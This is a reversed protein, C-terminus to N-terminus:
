RMHKATHKNQEYLTELIAKFVKEFNAMSELAKAVAPPPTDDATPVADVGDRLKALAADFEALSPQGPKPKYTRRLAEGRAILARADSLATRRRAMLEPSLTTAGRKVAPGAAATSPPASQLLLILPLIM